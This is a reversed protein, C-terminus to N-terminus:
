EKDKQISEPSKEPNELFTNIYKCFKKLEKPEEKLTKCVISFTIKDVCIRKIEEVTFNLIKIRKITEVTPVSRSESREKMIMRRVTEYKAKAKTKKRPDM